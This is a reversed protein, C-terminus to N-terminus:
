PTVELTIPPSWTTKGFTTIKLGMRFAIRSQNTVSDAVYMKLSRPFQYTEHPPISVTNITDGYNDLADWEVLRTSSRWLRDWANEPIALKQVSNTINVLSLTVEFVGDPHVDTNDATAIVRFVPTDAHSLTAAALLLVAAILLRRM